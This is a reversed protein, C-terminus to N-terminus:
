IRAYNNGSTVKRASIGLYPHGILTGPLYDRHTHAQQLGGDGWEVVVYGYGGVAQQEAGVLKRLWRNKEMEKGDWLM